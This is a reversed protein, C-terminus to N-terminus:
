KLIHFVHCAPFSGFITDQLALKATKPLPGIEENVSIASFSPHCGIMNSHYSMRVCHKEEFRRLPMIKLRFCEYAFINSAM